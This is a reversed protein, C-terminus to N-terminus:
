IKNIRKYYIFIGIPLLISIVDAEGSSNFHTVITEPLNSYTMVTYTILIILLPVSILDIVLDYPEFPVSRGTSM